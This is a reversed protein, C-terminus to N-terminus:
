ITHSRQLIESLDDLHQNTTVVIVRDDELIVDRGGPIITTGNRSVCAILIDPKLKLDMIPTNLKPFTNNVRFELAEVAGGVLRHLTEINSGLSNQMARVYRVILNATLVRPSVISELGTSEAIAALNARNVKTIVKGKTRSQAYLALIINEEDFGTLAVVADTEAIGEEDLLEQDTGDGCIVMAKPLLRGLEACRQPDLEIIKVTAGNELLRKSLYYSIRGGGIIMVDKAEPMISGMNAFFNLIDHAPAIINIKDKAKLLFNGGPISVNNGRQVACILAKGKFTKHIDRIYVGDLASGERIKIEAIEVKKNSFNEVKIAAPFQLIRFLESSAAREPNISMSLGLEDRMFVLQESYEPNRVRAITHKAGMKKSILCCLLNIEDESTCAILLDTKPVDAELLIQYSAGNGCIGMVDLTNISNDINQQNKDIIVIDHGEGSLQEALTSGVKGNGVIVIRM